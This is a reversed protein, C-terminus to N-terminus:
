EDALWGLLRNLGRRAEEVGVERLRITDGPRAQALLPIDAHIVTALVPYGGTTPYDVLMAILQGSPTVQIAGSTIPTTLIEAPRLRLGPAAIRLGMRDIAPTVVCAIACLRDLADPPFADRHPGAMVRLEWPGFPPPRHGIPWRRIPQAQIRDGIPLADGARLLRGYGGGFAGRECLSRSGLVMPVDIGGRVALYGRLGPNLKGGAIMRNAEIRHTQWPPQDEVLHSASLTAGTIAIAAAEHFMLSPAVAAFELVAADPHNGVLRNGVAASFWDAAGGQGVGFREYGPRGRDQISTHRGPDTVEIM